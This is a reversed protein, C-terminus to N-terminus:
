SSGKRLCGWWMEKVDSPTDCQVYDTYKNRDKCWRWVEKLQCDGRLPNGYLCLTSLKPLARLINIDVTRLINESLDLWELVIVKVSTEVTLLCVNRSSKNIQLLSHSNIFKRDSQTHFGPSIYPYVYQINPLM